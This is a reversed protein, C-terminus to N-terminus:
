DAYHTLYDYSLGLCLALSCFFIVHLALPGHYILGTFWGGFVGVDGLGTVVVFFGAAGFVFRLWKPGSSHPVWKSDQHGLIWRQTYDGFLFAAIISADFYWIAPIYFGIAFLVLGLIVGAVMVSVVQGPTFKKM